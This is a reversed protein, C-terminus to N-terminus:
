ILDYISSVVSTVQVSSWVAANYPSNGCINSVTTNKAMGERGLDFCCSLPKETVKAICHRSSQLYFCRRLFSFTQFAWTCVPVIAKFVWILQMPVMWQGGPLCLLCCCSREMWSHSKLEELAGPKHIPKVAGRCKACGCLVTAPLCVFCWVWCFVHDEGPSVEVKWGSLAFQTGSHKSSLPTNNKAKISSFTM